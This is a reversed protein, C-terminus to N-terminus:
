QYVQKRGRNALFEGKPLNSGVKSTVAGLKGAPITTVPLIEHEFLIPNLFHRGEGLVRERIGKQGEKALIQGPPLPDGIKASIM